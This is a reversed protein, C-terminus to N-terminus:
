LPLDYMLIIFQNFGDGGANEIQFKLVVVFIVHSCMSNTKIKLGASSWASRCSQRGLCKSVSARQALHDTTNAYLPFFSYFYQVKPM